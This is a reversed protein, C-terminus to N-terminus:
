TWTELAQRNYDDIERTIDNKLSLYRERPIRTCFYNYPSQHSFLSMDYTDNILGMAKVEDFIATDLFIKM